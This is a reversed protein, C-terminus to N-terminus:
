CEKINDGVSNGNTEEELTFRKRTFTVFLSLRTMLNNNFLSTKNAYFVEGNM